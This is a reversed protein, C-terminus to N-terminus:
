STNVHSVIFVKIKVVTGGNFRHQFVLSRKLLNPIDQVLIRGSNGFLDTGMQNNLTGTTFVGAIIGTGMSEGTVFATDTGGAM